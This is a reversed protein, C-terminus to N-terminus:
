QSAVVYNITFDNEALVSDIESLKVCMFWLFDLFVNKEGTLLFKKNKWKKRGSIDVRELDIIM